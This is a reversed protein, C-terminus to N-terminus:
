DEDRPRKLEMYAQLEELSVTGSRDTDMAEFNKAVRPM